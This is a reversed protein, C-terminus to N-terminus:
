EITMTILEDIFQKANDIDDDVNNTYYAHYNHKGSFQNNASKPYPRIFRGYISYVSENEDDVRIVVTHNNTVIREYLLEAWKGDTNQSNDNLYDTVEKYWKDTNKKLNRKM